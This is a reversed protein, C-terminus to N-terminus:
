RCRIDAIRLARIEAPNLHDLVIVPVTQLGMRKAAAYRGHGAVIEDNIDVSIANTFGFRGISAIIKTIQSDTHTRANRESPKIEDIPREIVKLQLHPPLGPQSGTDTKPKTRKRVASLSANTSTM